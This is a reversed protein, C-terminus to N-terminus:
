RMSLVWCRKGRYAGEGAEQESVMASGNETDVTGAFAGKGRWILEGSVLRGDRQVELVGVGALEEQGEEGFGVHEDVRESGADEFTESEGWVRQSFM